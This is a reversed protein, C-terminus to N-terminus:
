VELPGMNKENLKGDCSEQPFHKLLFVTGVLNSKILYSVHLAWSWAYAELWGSKRGHRSGVKQFDEESFSLINGMLHIIETRKDEPSLMWTMVMNHMLTRPWASFVFMYRNIVFYYLDGGEGGRGGEGILLFFNRFHTCMYKQVLYM